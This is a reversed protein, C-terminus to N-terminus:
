HNNCMLSLWGLLHWQAEIAFEDLLDDADYAADKIDRLWAKIPGSKWQM